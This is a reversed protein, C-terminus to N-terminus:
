RKRTSEHEQDRGKKNLNYLALSQKLQTDARAPHDLNHINYMKWIQAQRKHQGQRKRDDADERGKM